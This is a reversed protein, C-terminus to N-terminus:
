VLRSQNVGPLYMRSRTASDMVVDVMAVSSERWGIRAVRSDCFEERNGQLVHFGDLVPKFVIFLCLSFIRFSM